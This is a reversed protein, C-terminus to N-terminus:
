GSVMRRAQGIQGEISQRLDQTGITPEESTAPPAERAQREHILALHPAFNLKEDHTYLDGSPTVYAQGSALADNIEDNAMDAHLGLEDDSLQGLVDTEGERGPASRIRDLVATYATRRERAAAIAAAATAPSPGRERGLTQLAQQEALRDLELAIPNVGPQRRTFAREDM